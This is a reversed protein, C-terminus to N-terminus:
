HVGHKEILKTYLENGNGRINDVERLRDIPLKISNLKAIANCFKEYNVEYQTGSKCIAGQTIFGMSILKDRAKRSTKDTLGTMLEFSSLSIYKEGVNNCHRISNLIDRESQSLLIQLNIPLSVYLGLDLLYKEGKNIRNMQM